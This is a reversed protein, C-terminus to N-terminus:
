ESVDIEHHQSSPLSSNWFNKQIGRVLIIMKLYVMGLNDHFNFFNHANWCKKKSSTNMGIEQLEQEHVSM